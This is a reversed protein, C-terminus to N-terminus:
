NDLFVRTQVHCVSKDVTISLKCWQMMHKQIRPCTWGPQWIRTTLSCRLFLPTERMSFCVLIGAIGFWSACGSRSVLLCGVSLSESGFSFRKKKVARFCTNKLRVDHSHQEYTAGFPFHVVSKDRECVCVYTPSAIRAACSLFFDAFAM